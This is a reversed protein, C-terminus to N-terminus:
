IRSVSPHWSSWAGNMSSASGRRGSSFPTRAKHLLQPRLLPSDINAPGGDRDQREAQDAVTMDCLAQTLSLASGPGGSVDRPLALCPLCPLACVCVCVGLRRVGSFCSAPAAPNLTVPNAQSASPGMGVMGLSHSSRYQELQVLCPQPAPSVRPRPSSSSSYSSPLCPVQGATTTYKAPRRSPPGCQVRAQGGLYRRKVKRRRGKQVAPLCTLLM